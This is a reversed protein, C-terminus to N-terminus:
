CHRCPFDGTDIRDALQRFVKAANALGAACLGSRRRVDTHSRADDRDSRWAGRGDHGRWARDGPRMSGELDTKALEVAGTKEDTM